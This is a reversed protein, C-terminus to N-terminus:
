WGLLNGRRARETVVEEMGEVEGSSVDEVSVKLLASDLPSHLRSRPLRGHFFRIGDLPLDDM